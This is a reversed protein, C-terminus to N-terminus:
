FGRIESCVNWIMSADKRKITDVNKLTKPALKLLFKNVKIERDAILNNERIYSYFMARVDAPCTEKTQNHRLKVNGHTAKHLTKVGSSTPQPDTFYMTKPGNRKTPPKSINTEAMPLRILLNILSDVSPIGADSPLTNKIVDNMGKRFERNQKMQEMLISVQMIKTYDRMPVRMHVRKPLDDM